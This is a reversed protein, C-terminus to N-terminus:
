CDKKWCKAQLEANSISILPKIPFFVARSSTAVPETVPPQRSIRIVPSTSRPKKLIASHLQGGESTQFDQLREMQNIRAIARTMLLQDQRRKSEEDMEDEESEDEDDSEM